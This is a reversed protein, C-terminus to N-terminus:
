PWLTAGPEVAGAVMDAHGGAGHLDGGATQRAPDGAEALAMAPGDLLEDVAREVERAAITPGRDDCRGEGDVRCCGSVEDGCHLPHGARADDEDPAAPEGGGDDLAVRDEGTVDALSMDLPAGCRTAPRLLAERASAILLHVLQDIRRSVVGGAHDHGCQGDVVERGTAVSGQDFGDDLVGSEPSQPIERTPGVEIHGIRTTVDDGAEGLTEGCQADVDDIDRMGGTVLGTVGGVSV